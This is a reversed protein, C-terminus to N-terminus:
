VLLLFLSTFYSFVGRITLIRAIEKSTALTKQAQPCEKGKISTHLNWRTRHKNEIAIRFTSTELVLFLADTVGKLIYREVRSTAMILM